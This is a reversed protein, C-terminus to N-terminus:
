LVAAGESEEYLDELTVLLKLLPGPSYPFLQQAQLREVLLQLRILLSMVDDLSLSPCKYSGNGCMSVGAEMEEGIGFDKGDTAFYELRDGDIDDRRRKGAFAPAAARGSKLDSHAGYEMAALPTESLLAVASDSEKVGDGDEESEDDSDSYDVLGLKVEVRYSAHNAAVNGESRDKEAQCIPACNMASPTSVQHRTAFTRYQLVFGHFDDLVFHLYRLLYLLFCTENSSLWDLFVLHDCSISDVLHKFLHHPNLSNTLHSVMPMSVLRTHYLCVHYNDILRTKSFEDCSIRIYTKCRLTSTVLCCEAACVLESFKTRRHNKELKM